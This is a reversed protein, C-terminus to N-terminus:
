ELYVFTGAKLVDKSIFARRLQNLYPDVAAIDEPSSLFLNAYMWLSKDALPTPEMPYLRRIKYLEVAIVPHVRAARYAKLMRDAKNAFEDANEWGQQKLITEVQARLGLETLRDILMKFPNIFQRHTTFDDTRTLLDSKFLVPNPQSAYLQDLARFTGPLRGIDASTMTSGTTKTRPADMKKLVSNPNEVLNPPNMKEQISQAAAQEIQEKTPWAEPMLVHYYEPPLYQLNEKAWEALQPAIRTPVKGKWAAVDPHTRVKQSTYRSTHLMPVWYQRYEYPTDQVEKILYDDNLQEHLAQKTQSVRQWIERDNPDLAFAPVMWVLTCIFLAKLRM